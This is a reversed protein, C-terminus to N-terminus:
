SGESIKPQHTMGEALHSVFAKQRTRAPPQPCDAHRMWLTCLPQHVPNHCLHGPCRALEAKCFCMRSHMHLSDSPQCCVMLTSYALPKLRPQPVCLMQSFLM